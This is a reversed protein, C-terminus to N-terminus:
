LVGFIASQASRLHSAADQLVAMRDELEALRRNSLVWNHQGRATHAYRAYWEDLEACIDEIRRVLRTRPFRIRAIRAM